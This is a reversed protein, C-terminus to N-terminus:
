CESGNLLSCCRFDACCCSTKRAVASGPIQRMATKAANQPL